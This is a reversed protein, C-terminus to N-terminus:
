RDLWRALVQVDSPEYGLRDYFATAAANDSRVMLQLKPIGRDRAWQEGATMLARGVGATRRDPRVALYYVWARHGDHGVMATGVLGDEVAALVTSAPGRLPRALDDAPDNWPRTLGCDHWLRVADAHLHEPLDLIEVRVVSPAPWRM